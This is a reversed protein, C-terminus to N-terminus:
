STRQRYMTNVYDITHHNSERQRMPSGFQFNTKKHDMMKDKFHLKNFDSQSLNSKFTGNVELEVTKGLWGVSDSRKGELFVDGGSIDAHKISFNQREIKEKFEERLQNPADGVMLEKVISDEM